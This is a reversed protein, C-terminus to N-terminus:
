YWGGVSSFSESNFLVGTDLRSLMLEFENKLIISRQIDDQALVQSAIYTPVCTLVSSEVGLDSDSSINETTITPWLANYYIRYTGATGILLGRKGIFTFCVDTDTDNVQEFRNLYSIFDEPMTITENDTTTTVEYAVIKPAVGNAMIVLCENALPQFMKAYNDVPDVNPDIFLKNWVSEKVESWKKM